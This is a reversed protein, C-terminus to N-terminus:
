SFEETLGAWIRMAAALQAWYPEAPRFAAVVDALEAYCGAPTAATLPAAAIHPWLDEHADIGPAEIAANRTADSARDHRVSPAGSSVAWGLHDAARKALLGAWMDDFRDFPWDPGQLGMYMLPVAPRTFALNMGCMPFFAGVPVFERQRAPRLRLDPNQLQTRGDLDPVHSWLGHHIMVPWRSGRIRYPYGRPYVGSGHLTNWWSPDPVTGGFILRLRRLYDVSPEPRCDDDLHWIVDADRRAALLTGYSRCASSWSPIIWAGGGLGAADGRAVHRVWKPTQFSAAAADEVLIVEARGALESRWAALFDAALAPRVTPVVVTIRM